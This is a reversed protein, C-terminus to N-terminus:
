PNLASSAASRWRAATSAGVDLSHAADSGAEAGAGAGARALQRGTKTAQAQTAQSPTAQSSVGVGGGGNSQQTDNPSATPQSQTPMVDESSGGLVDSIPQSTSVQRIGALSLGGIGRSNLSPGSDGEAGAGGGGAIDQSVDEETAM